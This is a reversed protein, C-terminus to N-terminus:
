SLRTLTLPRAGTTQIESLARPQIPIIGAKGSLSGVLGFVLSPM